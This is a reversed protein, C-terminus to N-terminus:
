RYLIGLPAETTSGVLFPGAILTGGWERYGDNDADDWHGSIGLGLGYSIGLNVMTDSRSESNQTGLAVSVNVVDAGVGITFGDNGASIDGNVDLFGLNLDAIISEFQGKEQRFQLLNIEDFGVVELETQTGIRTNGEERIVGDKKSLHMMYVEHNDDRQGVAALSIEGTPVVPVDHIKFISDLGGHQYFFPKGNEGSNLKSGIEYSFSETRDDSEENWGEIATPSKISRSPQAALVADFKDEKGAHIYLRRDSGNVPTATPAISSAPIDDTKPQVAFSAAWTQPGVVGDVALGKAQQFQRAVDQSAPGFKGDIEIDYGLDHMQQQWQRVRDSQQLTSGPHYKLVNSTSGSSRVPGRERAAQSWAEAADPSRLGREAPTSSTSPTDDYIQNVSQEIAIEKDDLFLAAHDNEQKLEELEAVSITEGRVQRAFINGEDGPSDTKNLQRDIFHGTEELLVDLIAEPCDLHHELFKRSLYITNDGFAGKAAFFEDSVIKIAPVNKGQALANLLTRSQELNIADGFATKMQNTFDPNNSFAQLLSQMTAIAQDLTEKEKLNSLSIVTNQDSSLLFTSDNAIGIDSIAERYAYSLGGALLSDRQIQVNVGIFDGAFLTDFNSNHTPISDPVAYNAYTQDCPYSKIGEPVLDFWYNELFEINLLAKPAQSLPEGFINREPADIGASKAMLSDFIIPSQINNPNFETETMKKNM